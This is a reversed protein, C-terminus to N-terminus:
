QEQSPTVSESGANVEGDVIFQLRSNHVLILGRKELHSRSPSSMVAVSIFGDDLLSVPMKKGTSKMSESASM